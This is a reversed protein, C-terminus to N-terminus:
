LASAHKACGGKREERKAIKKIDDKLMGGETRKSSRGGDVRKRRRTRRMKGDREEEARAGKRGKQRVVGVRRGWMGCRWCVKWRRRLHDEEMVRVGYRERCHEGPHQPDVCPM